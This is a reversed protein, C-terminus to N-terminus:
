SVYEFTSFPLTWHRSECLSPTKNVLINFVIINGRMSVYVEDMECHKEINLHPVKRSHKINQVRKLDTIAHFHKDLPVVGIIKM